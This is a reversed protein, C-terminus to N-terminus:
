DAREITIPCDIFMEAEECSWGEEGREDELDFVSNEDLWEQMSQEEEETFGDFEYEEWCGDDTSFDSMDYGCDMIDFNGDLPLDPPNDDETEIFFEGWRWGTEHTIEQGASNHWHNIDRISKKFTPEIKWIAM